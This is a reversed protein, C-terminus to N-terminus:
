LMLSSSIPIIYVSIGICRCYDCYPLRPTFQVDEEVILLPVLASQTEEQLSISWVIAGSRGESVVDNYLLESREAVTQLFAKINDRFAGDYDCPCGPDGFTNFRFLRDNSHRPRKRSNSSNTTNNPGSPISNPEVLTAVAKCFM